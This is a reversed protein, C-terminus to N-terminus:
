QEISSPENFEVIRGDSLPSGWLSLSPYRLSQGVSRQFCVTSAESAAYKDPLQNKASWQSFKAQASFAWQDSVVAAIGSVENNQINIFILALASGYGAKFLPAANPAFMNSAVLGGINGVSIQFAIGFARKYHGALNNSVWVVVVPQAVYVGINVIFLAMHKVRISVYSHDRGASAVWIPISHVQSQSADYGFPNLITPNFLATSYRSTNITFYIFAGMYIKWDKVIIQLSERNLKDMKASGMDEKLRAAVMVREEESLFSAKSPWDVILFKTLFSLSITMLGEVIFICRWGSYGGVGDLKAFSFALLGGVAGAVMGSTFLVAFRKQFEHGKYYTSMLYSFGPLLGAEFVGLLFRCVTLGKPCKVFGQCVTVLGFFFTLITIWTSPAVRKLLINSPVELIIYPVFFILLALRIDSTSNMNLEEILGEILAKGVNIRDMFACFYVIFLIPVIHLDFKWLLRQEAKPDLQESANTHKEASEISTATSNPTKEGEM